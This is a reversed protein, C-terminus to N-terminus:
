CLGLAGEVFVGGFCAGGLFTGEFVSGLVVALVVGGLLISTEAKTQCISLSMRVVFLEGRFSFVSPCIHVDQKKRHFGESSWWAHEWSTTSTESRIRSRGLWAM